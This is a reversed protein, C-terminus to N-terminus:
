GKYFNTGLGPEYSFVCSWILDLGLKLVHLKKNKIVRWRWGRGRSLEKTLILVLGRDDPPLSIASYAFCM